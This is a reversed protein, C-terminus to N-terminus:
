VDDQVVLGLNSRLVMALGFRTSPRKHHQINSYLQINSGTGIRRNLSARHSRRFTWAVLASGNAGMSYRAYIDPVPRIVEVGRGYPRM